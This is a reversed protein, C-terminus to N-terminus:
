PLAPISVSALTDFGARMIISKYPISKDLM